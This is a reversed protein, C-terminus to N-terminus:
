GYPRWPLELCTSLIRTTTGGHATTWYGMTTSLKQCLTRTWRVQLMHLYEVSQGPNLFTPWATASLSTTSNCKTPWKQTGKTSKINAPAFHRPEQHKEMNNVKKILQQVLQLTQQQINGSLDKAKKITLHGSWWSYASCYSYVTAWHLMLSRKYYM